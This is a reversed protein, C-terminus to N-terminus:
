LSYMASMLGRFRGVDDGNEVRKYGYLGEIGIQLHRDFSYILNGNAYHSWRYADAPQLDTTELNVYGHSITSRWHSSWRHTLSAMSSLYRPAVWEGSSNLALDASLFSTDNGMGGVGNGYVGWFLLSTSEGLNFGGSLNAGWGFVAADASNLGNVGLVRFIASSRLHSGNGFTWRVSFGSDPAYLHPTASEGTMANEDTSTDVYFSPEEASITFRWHESLAFKYQLVARRAFVVSNPGEYDVTDPWADPDEFVGFTFGGVIGYFKGYLHQLRYQMGRTTSGSFDNQYYIRLNGPNNPSRIDIRVQSGDASAMFGWMDADPTSGPLAFLAPVFRGGTGLNGSSVAMDVRPRLNLQVLFSTFPVRMYGVYQPDFTYNSLRAAALQQDNLLSRFRVLAPSGEPSKKNESAEKEKRRPVEDASAEAENVGSFSASSEESAPPESAPPDTEAGQESPESKSGEEQGLAASSVFLSWLCAAGALLLKKNAKTLM